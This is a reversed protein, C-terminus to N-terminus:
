MDDNFKIFLQKMKISYAFSLIMFAIKLFINWDPLLIILYVISLLILQLNHVTPGCTLEVLENDKATFEMFNSKLTGIEIYVSHNGDKVSIEKTDDNSIKGCYEDDIYIRFNSLCAFLKAPRSIRLIAIM